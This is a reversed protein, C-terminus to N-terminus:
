RLYAPGFPGVNRLRNDPDLVSGRAHKAPASWGAAKLIDGTKRDVFCFVSKSSPSNYDHTWVKAYKRGWNVGFVTYTASGAKIASEWMSGYHTRDHKARMASLEAVFAEIEADVGTSKSANKSPATTPDGAVVFLDERRAFWEVGDTDVVLVCGPLPNHYGNYGRVRARVITFDGALTERRVTKPPLRSEGGSDM